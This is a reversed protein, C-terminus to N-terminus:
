REGNLQERKVAMRWQIRFYDAVYARCGPQATCDGHPCRQPLQDIYGKWERRHVGMLARVAPGLCRSISM